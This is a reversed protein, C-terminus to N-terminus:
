HTRYVTMRSQETEQALEGAAAEGPQGKMMEIETTPQEIMMGKEINITEEPPRLEQHQATGQPKLADQPM